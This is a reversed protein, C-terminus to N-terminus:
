GRTAAEVAARVAAMAEPLRAPDKGGGQALDETSRM